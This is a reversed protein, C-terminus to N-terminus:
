EYLNWEVARSPALIQANFSATDILGGTDEVQLTIAPTFGLPEDAPVAITATIVGSASSPNVTLASFTLGTPNATISATMDELNDENDSAQGIIVNTFTGGRWLLIQVGTTNVSPDTNADTVNVTFTGTGVLGLSDTVTIGIDSVLTEVLIGSADISATIQGSADVAVGTIVLGQTNSTTVTLDALNAEDDAVSAITKTETAGPSIAFVGGATVAPTNNVRLNASDSLISVGSDSSIECYYDGEDADEANAIQLTDTDAGSFDGGNSVAVDPEVFWQYSLVGADTATVAFTVAAGPNVLVDTPQSTISPPTPPVFEIAGIDYETANRFDGDVPRSDGYVDQWLVPFMTTGADIAPSGFFLNYTAPAYTTAATVDGAVLIETATNSVVLAATTLTGDIAILKGALEDVALGADADVLTTLHSDSDFTSSDITQTTFPQYMPDLGTVNNLESTLPDRDPAVDGLANDYFLCNVTNITANYNRIGYGDGRHGSIICNTMTFDSGTSVQIATQGNSTYNDAITCNVFEGNGDMVVTAGREGGSTNVNGSILCNAVYANGVVSIACARNNGYNGSIVSRVLTSTTANLGLAVGIGNAGLPANETIANDVIRCDEIAIQANGAYIGAGHARQLAGGYDNALNDAIVCNTITADVLGTIHMGAGASNAREDNAAQTENDLFRSNTIVLSHSTTATAYLGGGFGQSNTKSRRTRAINDLFLSDEITVDSDTSYLGGGYAPDSKGSGTKSQTSNDHISCNSILLTSEGVYIGAGRMQKNENQPNMTNNRIVCNSLTVDAGGAIKVGAGMYDGATFANFDGGRITVGDIILGTTGNINFARRDGGSNANIDTENTVFDRNAKPYSSIETGEFGGYMKVGNQATTMAIEASLSLTGNAVWIEQTAADADLLASTLNDYATAWSDGDGNSTAEPDVYIRDGGGTLPVEEGEVAGIDYPNDVKLNGNVPRPDGYFDETQAKGPDTGADIAPSGEALDYKRIEFSSAGTKDGPVVITSATNSVVATHNTTGVDLVIVMGAYNGTLGSVNLTSMGTNSDYDVSSITDSVGGTFLPDLGSVPLSNTTALWSPDEDSLGVNYFLSNSLDMTGLNRAGYVGEGNLNAVLVNTFNGVAGSEVELAARGSTTLNDELTVNELTLSGSRVNITGGRDSGNANVNGTIISNAVYGSSDTSLIAPARRPGYNGSILCKTVTTAEGNLTLATGGTNAGNRTDDGIANDVFFCNTITATDAATYLGASHAEGDGSYHIGQNDWFWCNEVTATLNGSLFAGAGRSNDAEEASMTSNGWFRSDSLILTHTSTASVHLGGGEAESGGRARRTLADNDSFDCGTIVADSDSIYLGAGRIASDSGTGTQTNTGNSRYTCDTITVTSDTVAMGAGYMNMDNNNDSFMDNNRITCNLFAAEASNQVLVAGGFFNATAGPPDIDAGAVTLGDIIVGTAGDINLARYNNGSIQLKTEDGLIDRNSKDYTDAESGSFGGYIQTNNTTIGIEAAISLTGSSVWIEESSVGGDILAADLTGYATAWSDGDGGTAGPVVYIVAHAPALLLLAFLMFAGLTKSFTSYLM